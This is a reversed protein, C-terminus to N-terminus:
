DILFKEVKDMYSDIDSSACEIVLTLPNSLDLSFVGMISKADVIYRGSVLDAKVNSSITASVFDKVDDVSRLRIRVKTDM